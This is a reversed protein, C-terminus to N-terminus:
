GRSSQSKEYTEMAAEAQLLKKEHTEIADLLKQKAEEVAKPLTKPDYGAARIEQILEALQKKKEELQGMLGARKRNFMNTRRSLDEITRQIEEPTPDTQM